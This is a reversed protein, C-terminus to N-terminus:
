GGMTSSSGLSSTDTATHMQTSPPMAPCHLPRRRPSCHLRTAAHAHANAAPNPFHRLYVRFGLRRTQPTILQDLWVLQPRVWTSGLKAWPCGTDFRFKREGFGASVPSRHRSALNASVPTDGPLLSSLPHGGAFLCCKAHGIAFKAM